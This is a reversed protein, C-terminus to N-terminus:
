SPGSGWNRFGHVSTILLVINLIVIPLSHVIWIGYAGWVLCSVGNIFWGWRNKNSLLYSSVFTLAMGAWDM